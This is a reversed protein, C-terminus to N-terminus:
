SGRSASPDKGGQRAPAGAAATRHRVIDDEVRAALGAVTGAVAESLGGGQSLDEAEVAYAVLHDPLRDLERALEVAAGLGRPGLGDRGRLERPGLDLRHVRGPHGTGKHACEIVVALEANEWLDALHGADGDCEALATGPPLPRGAARERLRTLVAGGIGDDHRLRDGVAVIAIRTSVAM